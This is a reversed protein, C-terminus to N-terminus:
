IYYGTSDLAYGWVDFPSVVTDFTIRPKFKGSKECCDEFMTLAAQVAARLYGREGQPSLYEAALRSM